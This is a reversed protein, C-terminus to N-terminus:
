SSAKQTAKPKRKFAVRIPTITVNHGRNRLEDARREAKRFFRFKTPVTFKEGDSNVFTLEWRTRVTQKASPKSRGKPKDAVLVSGAVSQVAKPKRPTRKRKSAVHRKADRLVAADIIDEMTEDVILASAKEDRKPKASRSPKVKSAASNRPKRAKPKTPEPRQADQERLAAIVQAVIAAIEADSAM